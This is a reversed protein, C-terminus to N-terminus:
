SLLASLFRALLAILALAFLAWVVAVLVTIWLVARRLGALHRVDARERCEALVHVPVLRRVLLVGLPVIVLDDLLGFVPIFDPILDIPSLAYALVAFGLAKAYWPTRPDKGALVLAHLERELDRM